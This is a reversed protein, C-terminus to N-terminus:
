EMSGFTEANCFIMLMVKFMAAEEKCLILDGLSKAKLKLFEWDLGCKDQSYLKKRLNIYEVLHEGVQEYPGLRIRSRKSDNPVSNLLGTEYKKVWTTFTTYEIKNKKSFEM